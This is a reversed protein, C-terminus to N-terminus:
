GPILREQGMAARIKMLGEVVGITPSWGLDERARSTDYRLSALAREFQHRSVPPTVGLRRCLREFLSLFPYLPTPSLLITRAKSLDARRLLVLYEKQFIGEDVINYAKGAARRSRLALHIAEAVNEVYALPLRQRSRGIAIRLRPGVPVCLRAVFPPRGPGYLIGPRVVTVPLKRERHYNWVLRESEIKSRTYHGRSEEGADFPSEETVTEEGNIGYIGLSSVHVFRDINERCAAELLRETGRITVQEFESWLSGTDM